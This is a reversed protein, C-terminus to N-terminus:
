RRALLTPGLILSSVDLRDAACKGSAANMKLERAGSDASTARPVEHMVPFAERAYLVPRVPQEAMHTSPIAM